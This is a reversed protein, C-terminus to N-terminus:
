SSANSHHLDWCRITWRTWKKRRISVRLSRRLDPVTRLSYDVVFGPWWRGKSMRAIWVWIPADPSLEHIQSVEM